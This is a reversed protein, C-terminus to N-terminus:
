RLFSEIDEKIRNLDQHNKIVELQLQQKKLQLMPLYKNFRKLTEKQKKLENKTLRLKGM